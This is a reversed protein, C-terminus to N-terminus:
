TSKRDTDDKVKGTFTITVPNGNYDISYAFTIDSGKITGAIPVDGRSRKATGTIKEGDVKFVLTLPQPGGPTNFTANWEGAISKQASATASCVVAIALVSFAMLLHRKM